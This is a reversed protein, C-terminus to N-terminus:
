RHPEVSLSLHLTPSDLAEKKPLTRTTEQGTLAM